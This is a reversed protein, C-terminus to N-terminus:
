YKRHQLRVTKEGSASTTVSSRVYGEGTDKWGGIARLLMRSGRVVVRVGAVLGGIALLATLVPVWNVAEVIGGYM